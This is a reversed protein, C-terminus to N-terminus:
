EHLSPSLASPSLPVNVRVHDGGSAPSSQDAAANAQAPCPSALALVAGATVTRASRPHGAPRNGVVSRAKAWPGCTHVLGGSRPPNGEVLAFGVGVGGRPNSARAISM